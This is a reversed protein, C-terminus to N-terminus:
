RRGHRGSRGGAAHRAGPHDHRLDGRVPDRGGPDAGVLLREGPPDRRHRRSGPAWCCRWWSSRRAGPEPDGHPGGPDDIEGPHWVGSVRDGGALVGALFLLNHLGRSGCRARADEPVPASRRRGGAALAPPRLGSLHRAGARGGAADRDGPQLTWFFPVGRLFGLFLPPDGLPTLSGGINAVLFMFFVVTHTKYRRRANARLLPRILVMAAGTTGIWSALFTGIALLATNVGPSGRLPAASM